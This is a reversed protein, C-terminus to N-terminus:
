PLLPASSAYTVYRPIYAVSGVTLDGADTDIVSDESDQVIDLPAIPFFCM